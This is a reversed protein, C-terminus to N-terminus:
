FKIYNGFELTKYKRDIRIEKVNSTSFIKGNVTQIEISDNTNFAGVQEKIFLIKQLRDNYCGVEVIPNSIKALFNLIANFRKELSTEANVIKSSIETVKNM